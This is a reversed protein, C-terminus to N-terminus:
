NKQQIYARRLLFAPIIYSVLVALALVLLQEAGEIFTIAFSLIFCAIGGLVLPTFEITKGTAFTGVGYLLIFISLGNFSDNAALVSVIIFSIGLGLWLGNLASSIHTKVKIQKQERTYLFIHIIATVPMLFWVIQTHKMYMKLMIYQLIACIFVAFGWLFFYKSRDSLQRKSKEIMQQIIAISEQESINKEEM